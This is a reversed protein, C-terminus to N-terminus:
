RQESEKSQDQESGTVRFAHVNEPTVLELPVKISRDVPNGNQDDYARQAAIRGIETQEGTAVAIGLGRGRTVNTGKFAMNTRDAALTAACLMLLCALARM